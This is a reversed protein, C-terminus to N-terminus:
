NNTSLRQINSMAWVENAAPTDDNSYDPYLKNRGNTDRFFLVGTSNFARM